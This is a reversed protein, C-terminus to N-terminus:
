GLAFKVQMKIFHPRREETEWVRQGWGHTELQCHSFASQYLQPFDPFKMKSSSHSGQIIIICQRIHFHYTISLNWSRKSKTVAFHSAKTGLTLTTTPFRRTTKVWAVSALAFLLQRRTDTQRGDMWRECTPTRSFRSFMPDHLCYWM